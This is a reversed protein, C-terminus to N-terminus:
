SRFMENRMQFRRRADFLNQIRDEAEAPFDAKRSIRVAQIEPTRFQKMFRNQVGRERLTFRIRRLFLRDAADRGMKIEMERFLNIKIFKGATVPHRGAGEQADPLFLEVDRGSGIKQPFLQLFRPTEEHFRFQFDVLNRFQGAKGIGKVKGTKEFGSCTEGGFFVPEPFPFLLVCEGYETVTDDDDELGAIKYFPM